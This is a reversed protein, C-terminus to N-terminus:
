ALVEEKEKLPELVSCSLAQMYTLLGALALMEEPGDATPCPFCREQGEMGRVWARHCPFLDGLLARYCRWFPEETWAPAPPSLLLGLAARDAKLRGELEGVRNRYPEYKGCRDLDQRLQPLHDQVRDLAASAGELARLTEPAPARGDYRDMASLLAAEAQGLQQEIIKGYNPAFFWVNLIYAIAIGLLVYVPRLFPYLGYSPTMLLVMFGPLLMTIDPVKLRFARNIWATIVLTLTMSLALRQSAPVFSAWNFFLYTPYSVAVGIIQALMRKKVYVRTNTVTSGYPLTMIASVSISTTAKFGFIYVLLFGVYSAIVLKFLHMDDSLPFMPDRPDIKQRM